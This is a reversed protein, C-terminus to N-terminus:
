QGKEDRVHENALNQINRQMLIRNQMTAGPQNAALSGIYDWCEQCMELKTPKTEGPM